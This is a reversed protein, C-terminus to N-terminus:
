FNLATLDHSAYRSFNLRFKDLEGQKYGTNIKEM